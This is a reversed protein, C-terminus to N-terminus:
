LQWAAIFKTTEADECLVGVDRRCGAIGFQKGRRCVAYRNRIQAGSATQKRNLAIRGFVGFIAGQERGKDGIRRHLLVLGQQARQGGPQQMLAGAAGPEVKYFLEGAGKWGNGHQADEADGFCINIPHRVHNIGADVTGFAFPAASRLHNRCGSFQVVVQHSHQLCPLGGRM